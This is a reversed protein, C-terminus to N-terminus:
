GAVGCWIVRYPAGLCLRSSWVGKLPYNRRIFRDISSRGLTDTELRRADPVIVASVSTAVTSKPSRANVTLSSNCRQGFPPLQLKKM